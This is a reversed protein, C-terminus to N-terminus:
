YAVVMEDNGNGEAVENLVESIREVPIVPMYDVLPYGRHATLDLVQNYKEAWFTANSVMKRAFHSVLPIRNFWWWAWLAYDEVVPEYKCVLDKAMPKYKSYADKTAHAAADILGTQHVEIALERVVEIAKELVQKVLTPLPANQWDIEHIIEDVKRDLFQLIQLPVHHYKDCIPGIIGVVAEEVAQFVPKLLGANNKSFEYMGMIFVVACEGTVEVFDLYKLKKEEENEGVSPPINSSDQTTHHDYKAMAM